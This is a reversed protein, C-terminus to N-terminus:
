ECLRWRAIADRLFESRGQEGWGRPQVDFGTLALPNPRQKTERIYEFLPLVERTHWVPVLCNRLVDSVPKEAIQQNARYCEYFSSEFAIVDFGMEQHLFKIMRVKALNFEAVGHGSEGLQVISKGKLLPKLFQLDSYDTSSLSRIPRTNQKVWTATLPPVIPALPDAETILEQDTLLKDSDTGQIASSDSSFALLLLTILVLLCRM